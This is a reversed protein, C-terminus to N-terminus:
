DTVFIQNSGYFGLVHYMERYLLFMSSETAAYFRDSPCVGFVGRRHFNLSSFFFLFVM